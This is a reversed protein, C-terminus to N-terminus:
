RYNWKSCKYTYLVLSDMINYNIIIIYYSDYLCTPIIIAILSLRYIQRTIRGTWESCPTKPIVGGRFMCSLLCPLYVGASPTSGVCRTCTTSSCWWWPWTCTCDKASCGCTTPWWSSNCLWTYLSAIFRPFLGFVIITPM